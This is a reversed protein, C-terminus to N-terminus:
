GSARWAPRPTALPRSRRRTAPPGRSRPSAASVRPSPSGTEGPREAAPTAPEHPRPNQKENELGRWVAKRGPQGPRGQGCCRTLPGHRWAGGASPGRASRSLWGLPHPHRSVRPEKDTPALLGVSGGQRPRAPGHEARQGRGEPGMGLPTVSISGPCSSTAGQSQERLGWPSATAPSRNQPGCDQVHPPAPGARPPHCGGRAVAATPCRHRVPPRAM